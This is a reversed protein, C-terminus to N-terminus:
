GAYSLIRGFILLPSILPLLKLGLLAFKSVKYRKKGIKVGLNAFALRSL